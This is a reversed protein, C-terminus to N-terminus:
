ISKIKGRNFNCNHSKSFVHKFHHEWNLTQYYFALSFLGVSWYCHSPYIFRSLAVLWFLFLLFQLISLIFSIACSQAQDDAKITITARTIKCMLNFNTFITTKKEKSIRAIIKAKSFSCVLHHRTLYLSWENSFITQDDFDNRIYIRHSVSCNRECGLHDIVDFFEKYSSVVDDLSEITSIIEFVLSCRCRRYIPFSFFCTSTFKHLLRSSLRM